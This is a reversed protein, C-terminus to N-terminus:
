GRTDYRKLMEEFRADDRLPGWRPDMRLFPASLYSPNALLYELQDLAAAHDGVLVYIHALDIAYPLYYFGDEARPLLECALQGERVADDRRGQLAYVIGLSSRLRPDEPSDEIEDELMVRAMEFHTAAAERDGLWRYAHGALMANPRAFMKIRIWGDTTSELAGIADDYRGEYMEQWCRTWRQWGGAPTSIAEVVPRTESADGKWAWLALTKYFYPWFADPALAIAQDSAAVAGPYRRLMTLAWAASSVLGAHRPSLQFGRQFADLAEEWRGQVVYLDGMAEHVDASAALKGGAREFEALAGEIDRYAWLRFYGIDLRVRPDRPALELARQAAREAAELRQPTLDHRFYRAIAHGRALEAHALAFGPDLEVASQFADMWRKWNEYTFHPRTVWYRGRLYAQYAELNDTPRSEQAGQEGEGLAVGLAQVVNAAIQSQIQFVDDLVRDYSEAWLHTDDKARILQPTIRIRSTGGEDRAWRVTGELVYGVGLERGIEPISKETEAYQRASTRSIVQLGDIVALRATIEETMGEAFFVDDDAGLNEFPLVVIRPIEPEISKEVAREFLSTPPLVFMLAIVAAVAV